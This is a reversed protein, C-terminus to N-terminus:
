IYRSDLHGRGALDSQVIVVFESAQVFFIFFLLVYIIPSSYANLSTIWILNKSCSKTPSLVEISKAM